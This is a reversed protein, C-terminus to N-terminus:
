KRRSSYYFIIINSFLSYLICIFEFDELRKLKSINNLLEIIVDNKTPLILLNLTKLNSITLISNVLIDLNNIAFGKRMEDIFNLRIFSLNTIFKLKQSLLSITEENSLCCGKLDLSKLKNLGTLNSLFMINFSSLYESSHKEAVNNINNEDSYDLSLSTLNRYAKIFELHNHCNSRINFQNLNRLYKLTEFMTISTQVYVVRPNSVLTKGLFSVSKISPINELCRNIIDPFM